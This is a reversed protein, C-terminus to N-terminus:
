GQLWKLIINILDQDSMRNNLWDIIAAILEQDEIRGNGNSDYRQWPQLPASKLPHHDVNDSALTLSIASEM